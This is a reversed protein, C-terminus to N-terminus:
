PKWKGSNKILHGMQEHLQKLAKKVESDDNSDISLMCQEAYDEGDENDEVVNENTSKM